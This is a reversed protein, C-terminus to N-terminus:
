HYIFGLLGAGVLLVVVALLALPIRWNPPSDFGGSAQQPDVGYFRCLRWISGGRLLDMASGVDQKARAQEYRAIDADSIDDALNGPWTKDPATGEEDSFFCASEWSQPVGQQAIWGGGDLYYELERELQGKEWQEVRENSVSTQLFFAIVTTGLDKSLGRAFTPPGLRGLKPAVDILLWSAAM